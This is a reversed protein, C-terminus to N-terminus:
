EKRQKREKTQKRGVGGENMGEKRGGERGEERGEKRGPREKELCFGFFLVLVCPFFFLFFLGGLLVELEQSNRLM